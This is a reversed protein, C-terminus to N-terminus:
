GNVVGEASLPILGMRRAQDELESASLKNLGYPDGASLHFQVPRDLGHLRALRNLIDVMAKIDKADATKRIKPWLIVALEELEYTIKARLLDAQKATTIKFAAFAEGVLRFARSESVPPDMRKGIESYTHGQRRLELAQARRQAAEVRTASMKSHSM